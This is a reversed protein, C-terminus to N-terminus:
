LFGQRDLEDDENYRERKKPPLCALIFAVGGMATPIWGLQDLQLAMFLGLVVTSIGMIFAFSRNGRGVVTIISIVISGLGLSLFSLFTFFVMQQQPTVLM